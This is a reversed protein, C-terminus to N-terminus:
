VVYSSQIDIQSRQREVAYLLFPGGGNEVTKTM